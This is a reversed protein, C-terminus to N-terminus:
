PRLGNESARGEMFRRIWLFFHLGKQPCSRLFDEEHGEEPAFPIPNRLFNDLLQEFRQTSGSPRSGLMCIELLDILYFRCGICMKLFREKLTAM